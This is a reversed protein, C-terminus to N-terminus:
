PLVLTLFGEKDIILDGNTFCHLLTELVMDHPVRLVMSIRLSDLGGLCLEVIKAILQRYSSQKM